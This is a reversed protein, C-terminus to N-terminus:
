NSVPLTGTNSVVGGQTVVVPLSGSRANAPVTFDIQYLGVGTPTLGAYVIHADQGDVTVTPQITAPVQELPTPDGTAVSPNTAGMGALYIVITEGPTAPNSPTISSYTTDLHQGNVSGDPNLAIGPQVPVITLTIPLSLAGNVSAVAAYQQNPALEFPIEVAIPDNFVYYLPAQIGGVLLFTGDLQPPLPVTTAGTVMAPGLGSGYVQAVNGPALGAGLADATSLDFFIHLTGDPLLVPPAASNANVNGTLTEVAPALTGATANLTITTEPFVNGPQWTASYTNANGGALALPADGNSFNAVVSGGKVANGCNDNLQVILTAPWGAPVNFNNVLGSETMAIKSPTCTQAPPVVLTVNVVALVGSLGINVNGTYIGPTSPPTVSVSLQAPSSLSTVGSAPKVALWASGDTTTASTEFGISLASSTYLAVQQAGTAPTFYLGVPSPDPLAPATLPQNDLVATVYQPSNLSNSDSVQILAYQPGAALGSAAASPTLTLAGPTSPTASGSPNAISLWNSGSLLTASWSVTTSADGLNLIPVTQPRLPVNGQRAEFRVGTQGVGLIPGSSAVFLSVPVSIDTAGAIQLIDHYNGVALGASNVQVQIMYASGPISPRQVSLWPSNGATTVTPNVASNLTNSITLTRQQIGPTSSLAAFQFSAPSAQLQATGTSVNLTVMVDIVAQTTNQPVSVHIVASGSNASLMAPNVSVMLEAPASGSAPAVNIWPPQTSAAAGTDVAVSYAAATGNLSAISIMQPTPAPGNAIANFTLSLPSVQLLAAAPAFTISFQQITIFGLGDTVQITFLYTGTSSPTGSFVGISTMFLGPPNASTITFMYPSTGGAASIMGTYPVGATGQPLTSSTAFTLPAAIYLQFNHSYSVPTSESDTVTVTFTYTSPATPTGFIGGGATMLLGAPLNPSTFTYPAVGGSAGFSFTYSRGAMAPPLPSESTINLQAWAGPGLFFLLAIRRDLM